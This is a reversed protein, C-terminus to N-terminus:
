ASFDVDVGLEYMSQIVCCLNHCLVKCLVENTQAVETKSRLREGFKAKIMSFTTEVNSRKHYHQMFREENYQYLLYMRKWVSSSRKDGGTANVKFAIYPMAQKTLVLKLNKESSYAKDASVERMTFNRATQEVLPRFYPSDGAHASSIEVSTVINTTVGCMLHVKVWERRDITQAAGYKAHFWRKFQVTSFGSSDVAFDEEVAKLPLSSEVILQKLYPTLDERELYKSITNYHLPKSIYGRQLADHLDSQNRRGSMGGYVKLCAAFIIDAVSARPRGFTQVPEEINQCLESLLSLLKSKENVQAANYEHWAQKYTPKRVPEPTPIPQGTANHQIFELVALLHKCAQQRKEFDPCSCSFPSLRITYKTGTSQSPVLWVDGSQTISSTTAIELAKLQRTQMTGTAKEAHNRCLLTTDAVDHALVSHNFLDRQTSSCEAPSKSKPHLSSARM